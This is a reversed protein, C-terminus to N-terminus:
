QGWEGIVKVWKGIKQKCLGILSTHKGFIM